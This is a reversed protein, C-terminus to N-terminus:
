NLLSEVMNRYGAIGAFDGNNKGYFFIADGMSIGMDIAAYAGLINLALAVCAIFFALGRWLIFSEKQKVAAAIVIYCVSINVALISWGASNAIQPIYAVIWESLRSFIAGVGVFYAWFSHWLKAQGRALAKANGLFGREKINSAIVYVAVLFAIGFFVSMGFPTAIVLIAKKLLTLLAAGWVVIMVVVFCIGAIAGVYDM